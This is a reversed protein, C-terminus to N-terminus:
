LGSLVQISKAWACVRPAYASFLNHFWIYIPRMGRRMCPVSQRSIDALWWIYM